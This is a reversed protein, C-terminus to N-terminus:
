KKPSPAAEPTPAAPQSAQAKAKNAMDELEKNLAEESGLDDGYAGKGGGGLESLTSGGALQRQAENRFVLGLLFLVVFIVGLIVWSRVKPTEVVIVIGQILVIIGWINVGIALWEGVKPIPALISNIPSFAALLAFIRYITKYEGLTGKLLGHVLGWLIFTGVFSLLFSVIPVLPIALLLSLKTVEGSSVQSPPVVFGWISTLVGSVLGMVIVFIMSSKLSAAEGESKVTEMSAWPHILVSVFKNILSNM